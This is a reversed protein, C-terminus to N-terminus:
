ARAPASGAEALRRKAEAYQDAPLPGKQLIAVNDQLHAPNATGVITPDLEPNTATPIIGVWIELVSLRPRPNQRKTDRVRWRGGQDACYSRIRCM